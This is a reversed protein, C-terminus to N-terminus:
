GQWTGDPRRWIRRGVRWSRKNSLAQGETFAQSDELSDIQRNAKASAADAGHVIEAEATM